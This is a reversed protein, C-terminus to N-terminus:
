ITEKLSEPVFVNRVRFASCHLFKKYVILAGASYGRWYWESKDSFKRKASFFADKHCHLVPNEPCFIRDLPPMVVEPFSQHALAAAFFYGRRLESWERDKPIDTFTFTPPVIPNPNAM